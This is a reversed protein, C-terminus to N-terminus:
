GKSPQEAEQLLDRVKRLSEGAVKSRRERIAYVEPFEEPYLYYLRTGGEVNKEGFTLVGQEVMYREGPAYDIYRQAESLKTRAEAMRLRYTSSLIDIHANANIVEHLIRMSEMYGPQRQLPNIAPNELLASIDTSERLKNLISSAKAEVDPPLPVVDTSEAQPEIVNTEDGEAAMSEPEVAVHSAQTVVVREICQRLEDIAQSSSASRQVVREWETSLDKLCRAIEASEHSRHRAEERFGHWTMGSVIVCVAVACVMAAQQYRMTKMDSREDHHRRRGGM